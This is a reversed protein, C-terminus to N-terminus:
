ESEVMAPPQRGYTALERLRGRRVIRLTWDRDFLLVLGKMDLDVDQGSLSASYLESVPVSVSGGWIEGEFWGWALAAGDAQEWVFLPAGLLELCEGLGMEDPALALLVENSPRELQHERRWEVSVCSALLLLTCVVGRV